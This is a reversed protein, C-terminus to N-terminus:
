SARQVEVAVPRRRAGHRGKFRVADGVRPLQARGAAFSPVDFRVPNKVRDCRIFGVSKYRDIYIVNGAVWEDPDLDPAAAGATAAAHTGQVEPEAADARVPRRRMASAIAAILALASVTALIALILAITLRGEDGLQAPLREAVPALWKTINV